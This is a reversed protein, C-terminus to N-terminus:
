EQKFRRLLANKNTQKNKKDVLYCLHVNFVQLPLANPCDSFFVILIHTTNVVSANKPPAPIPYRSHPVLNVSVFVLNPPFWVFTPFHLNVERQTTTIPSSSDFTKRLFNGFIIRCLM